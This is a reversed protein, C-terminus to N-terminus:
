DGDSDQYTIRVGTASAVDTKILTLLIQIDKYATEVLPKQNNLSASLPNPIANLDAIVLDFQKLVDKNLQEKKLAILYDSIGKGNGGGTYMEKLGTINEIALSLSIGSYYGECKEPFILGGSQKGFPWGIRPGKMKDMENAFREVMSGIPSGVDTKTNAVFTARYTGQWDTVIHGTIDKMRAVVDQVYKKRKESGAASLKQIADPAFLLYDLAPFGQQNTTSNLTLNYNGTAANNEIANIGANNDNEPEAPLTNLFNNQLYTNGPGFQISSVREFKQYALKFAAKALDQNAQTPSALFANIAVELPSLQQQLGLYAPVIVNDAYNALMASKDFGNETPNESDPSKKGCSFILLGLVIGLGGLKYIKFNM